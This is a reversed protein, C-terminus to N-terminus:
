FDYCHLGVLELLTRKAISIKEDILALSICDSEVVWISLFTTLYPNVSSSPYVSGFFHELSYMIDPPEMAVAGTVDFIM